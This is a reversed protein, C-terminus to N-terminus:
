FDILRPYLKKRHLIERAYAADFHLRHYLSVEWSTELCDSMRLALDDVSSSTSRRQDVVSEWSTEVCDLMRVALDDVSSSTSRRRDAVSVHMHESLFIGIVCPLRVLLNLAIRTPQGTTSWTSRRGDFILSPTLKKHICFTMHMHPTLICGIVCPFRGLLKLAIQSARPCIKSPRRRPDGYTPSARFDIVWPDVKKRHLIERAYDSIFHDRYCLSAEWSTELRYSDTARRDVVHIATWCFNILRPDVKKRHLIELAYAPDFNLRHCMSVECSTEVCDSKRAALDEISSSTSRRRDAVRFFRDGM